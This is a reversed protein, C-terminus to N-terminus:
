KRAAEFAATVLASGRADGVLGELMNNMVYVVTLELDLDNVVASGGWGGWFCARRDTPLHPVTENPLGYGIGFKVPVMLVEDPGDAQVRFINDIANQSLLRKGKVVGGNSIASQSWALLDSSCM